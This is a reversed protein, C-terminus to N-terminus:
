RVDIIAALAATAIQVPEDFSSYAGPKKIKTEGDADKFTAIHAFADIAIKLQAQLRRITDADDSM